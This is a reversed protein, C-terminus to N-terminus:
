AAVPEGNPTMIATTWKVFANLHADLAEVVASDPQGDADFHHWAMPVKVEPETMIHAGTRALIETLHRQAGETGSMGGTGIMAVPKGRLSGEGRDRSAWDIANKLVGPVSGNYEPTAFIVADADRIAQKFRVIPNPDGLAEVDGNYFPLEAIDYIDIKIKGVALEQAARLLASNYSGSRLSGSISLINPYNNNTM